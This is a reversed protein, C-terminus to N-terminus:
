CRKSITFFATGFKPSPLLRSDGLYRASISYNGPPAHHAWKYAGAERVVSESRERGRRYVQKVDGGIETKGNVYVRPLFSCGRVTVRVTTTTPARPPPPLVERGTIRNFPHSQGVLTSEAGEDVYLCVVIESGLGYPSFAFNAFAYGTISKVEGSWVGHSSDAVVPCGASASYATAQGFWYCDGESPCEHHIEAHVQLEESEPLAKVTAGGSDAHATAPIVLLVLAALVGLFPLRPNMPASCVGGLRMSDIGNRVHCLRTPLPYRGRRIPHKEIRAALDQPLYHNSIRPETLGVPGLVVDAAVAM